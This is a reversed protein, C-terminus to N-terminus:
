TLCVNVNLAFTYIQLIEKIEHWLHQRRRFYAVINSLLCLILM